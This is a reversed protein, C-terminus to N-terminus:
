TLGLMEIVEERYVVGELEPGFPINHRIIWKAYCREQWGVPLSALTANAVAESIDSTM